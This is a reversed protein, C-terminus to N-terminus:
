SKINFSSLFLWCIRLGKLRLMNQCILSLFAWSYIIVNIIDPNRKAVETEPDRYQQRETVSDQNVPVSSYFLVLILIILLVQTKEETVLEFHRNHLPWDILGVVCVYFLFILWSHM